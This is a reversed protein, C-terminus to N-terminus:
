GTVLWARTYEPTCLWLKFSCVEALIGEESVSRDAPMVAPQSIPTWCGALWGPITLLDWHGWGTWKSVKLTNKRGRETTSGAVAQKPQTQIINATQQNGRCGQKCVQQGTAAAQPTAIGGLSDGRGAGRVPQQSTGRGKTWKQGCTKAGFAAECRLEAQQM